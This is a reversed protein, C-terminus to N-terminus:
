IYTSVKVNLDKFNPSVPLWSRNSKSFGAFDSNDWQMPTREFDRSYTSFDSPKFQCSM